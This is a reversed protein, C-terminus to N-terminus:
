INTKWLVKGCGFDSDGLGLVFGSQKPNGFYLRREVVESKRFPKCLWGKGVRKVRDALVLESKRVLHEWRGADLCFGRWIWEWAGVPPIEFWGLVSDWCGPMPFM